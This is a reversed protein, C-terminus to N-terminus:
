NTLGNNQDKINDNQMEILLIKFYVASKRFVHRYCAFTGTNYEVTQLVCTVQPLKLLLTHSGSLFM